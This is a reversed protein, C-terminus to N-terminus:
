KTPELIADYKTIGNDYSYMMGISSKKKSPYWSITVSSGGVLTYNSSYYWTYSGSFRAKSSVSGEEVSNWTRSSYITKEGQKIYYGDYVDAIITTSNLNKVVVEGTTELVECSQLGSVIMGLAVIAVMLSKGMKEMLKRM